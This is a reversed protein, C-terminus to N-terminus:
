PCWPQIWVKGNHGREFYARLSLFSGFNTHFVMKNQWPFSGLCLNRQCLFLRNAIDYVMFVGVGEILINGGEICLNVIPIGFKLMYGLIRGADGASVRVCKEYREDVCEATEM